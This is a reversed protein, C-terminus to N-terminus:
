IREDCVVHINAAVSALLTISLQKNRYGQCRGEVIYKGPNLLIEKEIVQGVHGVGLVWIDTKEDSTIYLKQQSSAAGIKESLQEIQESFKPSKLAMSFNDTVFLQAQQRINKDQLREPRTLYNNATQQLRLIIQAKKQYNQITANSMRASQTITLVSRWDDDQESKKLRALIKKLDISAQRQTIKQQLNKLEPRQSDIKKARQYAISAKSLQQQDIATLGDTIAQSFARDNLKKDVQKLEEGLATRTPDQAIIQQLIITQKQLNNEVKAVKLARLLKAVQPHSDLQQQLSLVRPEQSKIKLTQNLYLQAPKIRDEDYALQAQALKDEYANHWSQEAAVTIDNSFQLTALADDYASNAFFVLAKNKEEAILKETIIKGMAKISSDAAALWRLFDPNNLLPSHKKEFAVLQQQFLKRTAANDAPLAPIAQKALSIVPQEPTTTQQQYAVYLLSISAFLLAAIVTVLMVKRMKQRRRVRGQEIQQDFVHAGITM